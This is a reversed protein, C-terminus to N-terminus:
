GPEGMSPDPVSIMWPTGWRDTCVGFAPSFFTEQM